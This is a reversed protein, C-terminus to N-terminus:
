HLAGIGKGVAPLLARAIRIVAPSLIIIMLSPLIFAVLPISLKVSLSQAIEEARLVRKIRMDNAQVRLTQAISTGLSESQVLVTTFSRIEDVGVREAFNRMADDRSKGARIELSTLRLQEALIPHASAIEASVRDLSADLGLGAEVCILLLDLADPFGERVARQRRTQRFRVWLRPAMLGTIGLASGFILLAHTSMNGLVFPAISVFAGPLALGLLFRSAFYVSAAAPHFYGAQILTRGIKSHVGEPSPAVYKEVSKSIRVLAGDDAYRLSPAEGGANGEGAGATLRRRYPTRDLWLDYGVAVLLTVAAFTCLLSLVALSSDIPGGTATGHILSTITDM